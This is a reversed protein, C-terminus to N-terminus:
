ACGLPVCLGSTASGSSSGLVVPQPGPVNPHGGPLETPGLWAEGAADSAELLSVPFTM